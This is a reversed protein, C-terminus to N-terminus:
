SECNTAHQFHETKIYKTKNRVTFTEIIKYVFRFLQRPYKLREPLVYNENERKMSHEKKLFKLSSTHTM